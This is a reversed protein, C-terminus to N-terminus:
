AYSFTRRGQDHVPVDASRLVYLGHAEVADEPYDEPLYYRVRIKLIPMVAKFAPKLKSLAISGSILDDRHWTSVYKGVEFHPGWTSREDSCGALFAKGKTQNWLFLHHLFIEHSQIEVQRMNPMYLRFDGFFLLGIHNTGVPIDKPFPVKLAGALLLLTLANTFLTLANTLSGLSLSLPFPIWL